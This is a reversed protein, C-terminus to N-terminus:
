RLALKLGSSSFLLNSQNSWTELLSFSSSVRLIYSNFISPLLFLPVGLCLHFSVVSVIKFPTTQVLYVCFISYLPFVQNFNSNPLSGSGSLVVASFPSFPLFGEYFDSHQSHLKSICHFLTITFYNSNEM